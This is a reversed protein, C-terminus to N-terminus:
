WDLTLEGLGYAPCYLSDIRISDVNQALLETRVWYTMWRDGHMACVLTTDVAAGAWSRMHTPCCDCDLVANFDDGFRFSIKDLESAQTTHNLRVAVTCIAAALLEPRYVEDPRLDDPSYNKKLTFHGESKATLQYTLAQRRSFDFSFAGGDSTTDDAVVEATGQLVGGEITQEAWEIHAGDVGSGNHLARLSGQVEYRIDSTRECGSVAMVACVALLRLWAFDKTTAVKILSQLNPM